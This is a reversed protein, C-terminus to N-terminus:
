YTKFHVIGISVNFFTFLSNMMSSLSGFFSIIYLFITLSLCSLEYVLLVILAFYLCCKTYCKCCNTLSCKDCEYDLKKSDRYYSIKFIPILLLAGPILMFLAIDVAGGMCELQTDNYKLCMNQYRSGHATQLVFVAPFFYFKCITSSISFTLNFNADKWVRIISIIQMYFTFVISIWFFLAVLVFRFSRTSKIRELDHESIVSCQKLNFKSINVNPLLIVFGCFSEFTTRNCPEGTTEFVKIETYNWNILNFFSNISLISTIILLIFCITQYILSAKQRKKM